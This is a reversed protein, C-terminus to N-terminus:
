HKTNLALWLRAVAGTSTSDRITPLNEATGCWAAYADGGRYKMFHLTENQFAEILEELSPVYSCKTLDHDRRSSLLMAPSPEGTEDDYWNGTGRYNQPFGADKLQKALEYDM